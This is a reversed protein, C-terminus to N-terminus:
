AHAASTKASEQRELYSSAPMKHPRGSREGVSVPRQPRPASGAPASYARRVASRKPYQARLFARRRRWGWEERSLEVCTYGLAAATLMMLIGAWRGAYPFIVLVLGGIFVAVTALMSWLLLLTKMM